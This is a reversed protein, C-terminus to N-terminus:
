TDARNQPHQAPSPHPRVVSRRQVRPCSRTRWSLPSRVQAEDKGTALNVSSLHGSRSEEARIWRHQDPGQSKLSDGSPPLPRPCPQHVPTSRSKWKSDNPQATTPPTILDSSGHPPGTTTSWLSEWGQAELALPDGPAAVLRRGTASILAPRLSSKRACPRGGPPRSPPRRRRHRPRHQVLGRRGRDLSREGHVEGIAGALLEHLM